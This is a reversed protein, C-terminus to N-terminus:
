SWIGTVRTGTAAIKGSHGLFHVFEFVMLHLLPGYFVNRCLKESYDVRSAVAKRVWRYLLDEYVVFDVSSDAGMGQGGAGLNKRGCLGQVHWKRSVGVVLRLPQYVM